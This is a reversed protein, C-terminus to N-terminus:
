AALLRSIAEKVQKRVEDIRKFMHKTRYESLDRKKRMSEVFDELDRQGEEARLLDIAYQWTLRCYFALSSPERRLPGQSIASSESVLLGDICERM